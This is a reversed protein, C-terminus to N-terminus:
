IDSRTMRIALIFSPERPWCTVGIGNALAIAEIESAPPLHKPARWVLLMGAKDGIVESEGFYNMLAALLVNRRALYLRRLGRLHREYSGSTMFDDLAAQELWPQGINVLTKM